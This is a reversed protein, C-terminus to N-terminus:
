IEVTLFQTDACPSLIEKCLVPTEPFPCYVISPGFCPHPIDLTNTLDFRTAPASRLHGRFLNSSISGYPDRRFLGQPLTKQFPGAHIISVCMVMSQSSTSPSHLPTAVPPSGAPDDKPQAALPGVPTASVIGPSSEPHGQSSGGSAAHRPRSSAVGMLCAVVCVLLLGKSDM